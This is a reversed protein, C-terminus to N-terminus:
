PLCLDLQDRHSDLLVRAVAIPGPLPTERFLLVRPLLTITSPTASRVTEFLSSTYTQRGRAEHLCDRESSRGLGRRIWAVIEGPRALGRICNIIDSADAEKGSGYERNEWRM